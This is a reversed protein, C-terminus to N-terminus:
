RIDRREGASQRHHAHANAAREQTSVCDEWAKVNLGLEKAYRKFISMPDPVKAVLDSWEDQGAYIRDHMEWFKGEDDACAAALHATFSNKHQSLPFDYFRFGVVGTNILRTRIDPETVTAFNGCGPCEFDGFEMVQVSRTPRAIILTVRNPAGFMTM